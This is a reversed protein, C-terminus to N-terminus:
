VLLITPLTLHTYSVTDTSIGDSIVVDFPANGATFNIILDTSEGECITNSGSINAEPLAIFQVPTGEAIRFCKHTQDISGSGNDPGAMPSIYYTTGDTMGNQWDFDPTTSTSMVNGLMPGANDHLAFRLLDNTTPDLFHDNNHIASATENVCVVLSNLDMTGASTLCDCNKTGALSIDGCPGADSIIFSFPDGSTIEDSVFSNGTLTGGGTVNYTMPDGGTIDFSVRFGTKAPNCTEVINM